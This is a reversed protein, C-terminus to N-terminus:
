NEIVIDLTGDHNTRAVEAGAPMDRGIARRLAKGFYRGVKLGVRHSQSPRLAKQAETFANNLSWLTPDPFKARQEDDDFYLAAVRPMLRLPMARDNVFADYIALKAADPGIEVERMRDLDLKFQGAKELFLEVAPPVEKGLDLGSTHRRALCVSGGQGSFARNDCVFVRAAAIVSIQMSQDNSARLGLAMGFHDNALSPVALDMVGFLRPEGRGETAYEEREIAIGADLISARITEVLEIHPVPKWTKTAAPTAISALEERTRKRGGVHVMLTSRPKSPAAPPAIALDPM